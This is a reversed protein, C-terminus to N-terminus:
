TKLRWTRRYQAEELKVGAENTYKIVVDSWGLKPLVVGSLNFDLLTESAYPICKFILAMSSSSTWIARLGFM